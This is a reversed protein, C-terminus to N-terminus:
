DHTNLDENRSRQRRFPLFLLASNFDANRRDLASSYRRLPFKEVSVEWSPQVTSTVCLCTQQPPSFKHEVWTLSKGDSAKKKKEKARATKGGPAKVQPMVSHVQFSYYNEVGLRCLKEEKVSWAWQHINIIGFSCSVVACIILFQFVGKLRGSPSASFGTSTGGCFSENHEDQIEKGRKQQRTM